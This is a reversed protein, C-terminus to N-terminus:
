LSAMGLGCTHRRWQAVTIASCYTPGCAWGKARNEAKRVRRLQAHTYLRGKVRTAGMVLNQSRYCLMRRTNSMPEIRSAAARERAREGETVMLELAAKKSKSNYKIGLKDARAKLEAVTAM